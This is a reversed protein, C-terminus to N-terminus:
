ANRAEKGEQINPTGTKQPQLTPMTISFSEDFEPVSLGSATEPSELSTFTLSSRVEIVKNQDREAGPQVELVTESRALLGEGWGRGRWRPVPGFRTTSDWKRYVILITRFVLIDFRCSALRKHTSSTLDARLRKITIMADDDDDDDDDDTDVYNCGSRTQASIRRPIYVNLYYSVISGKSHRPFCQSAVKVFSTDSSTLNMKVVDDFKRQEEKNWVKSVDEGMVDFRWKWFAPGLEAKLQLRKASVHQRVCEISGSFVCMCNQPRGRGIMNQSTIQSRGKLPWVPTGIWKTEDDSETDGITLRTKSSPPNWSTIDVQFRPGVPIALKAHDDSIFSIWDIPQKRNIRQNNPTKSLKM